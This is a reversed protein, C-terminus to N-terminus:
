EYLIRSLFRNPFFREQIKNIASPFVRIKIYGPVSILCLIKVPGKHGFRVREQRM